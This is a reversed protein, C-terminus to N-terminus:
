FNWPYMCVYLFLVYIHVMPYQVYAYGIKTRELHYQITYITSSVILFYFIYPLILPLHFGIYLYTFFFIIRLAPFPRWICKASLTSGSWRACRHWRIQANETRRCISCYGNIRYASLSPGSWGASLRLSILSHTTRMNCLLRKRAKHMMHYRSPSQMFVSMSSKSKDIM